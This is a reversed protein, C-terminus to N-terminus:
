SPVRPVTYWQGAVVCTFTASTNTTMTISANASLANIVETTTGAANPFVYISYASINHVTIELGPASVPLTVSYPGSAASKVNVIMTKIATGSAQSATSNAAITAQSFTQLSTGRQFGTALGETYWAGATACFYLVASNQMQSVGTATAVDDITAAEVSNGYVQMPLTGHNIVLLELGPMSAPLAVSDAATAVTIVRSTQATLQYATAQTGSATAVISDQFSELLYDGPQLPINGAFVGYSRGQAM